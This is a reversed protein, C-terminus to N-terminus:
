FHQKVHKINRCQKQPYIARRKGTKKELYVIKEELKYNVYKVIVIDSQLKKNEAVVQNMNETLREIKECIKHLHADVVVNGKLDLIKQVLDSKKLSNLASRIFIQVAKM